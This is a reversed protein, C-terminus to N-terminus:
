RSATPKSATKRQLAHHQIRQAARWGRRHARPELGRVVKCTQTFQVLDERFRPDLIAVTHDRTLSYPIRYQRLNNCVSIKGCFADRRRDLGFQDLDDPCAQVLVPVHTEALRISDAVGKEDGFNPLCVLIGEIRDRNRRLLDGCKQADAWTEM